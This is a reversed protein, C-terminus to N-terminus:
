PYELQTGARLPPPEQGSRAAGATVPRSALHLAMCRWITVFHVSQHMHAAQFQSLLAAHREASTTRALPRRLQPPAAQARRRARLRVSAAAAINGAYAACQSAAQAGM